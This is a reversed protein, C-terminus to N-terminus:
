KSSCRPSYIEQVSLNEKEEPLHCPRRNHSLTTIALSHATPYFYLFLLKENGCSKGAGIYNRYRRHMNMDFM